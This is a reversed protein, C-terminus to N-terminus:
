KGALVNTVDSKQGGFNSIKNRSLGVIIFFLIPNEASHGMFNQRLFTHDVARVEEHVENIRAMKQINENSETEKVMSESYGIMHRLNQSGYITDNVQEKLHDM